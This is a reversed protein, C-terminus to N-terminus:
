MRLTQRSFVGGMRGEVHGLIIFGLTTSSFGTIDKCREVADEFSNPLGLEADEFSNPLGLDADEFSNPLGERPLFTPAAPAETHKESGDRRESSVRWNSKEHSHHFSYSIVSHSFPKNQSRKWSYLEWLAPFDQCCSRSSSAVNYGCAPLLSYVSFPAPLLVRLSVAFSESGEVPEVEELYWFSRM